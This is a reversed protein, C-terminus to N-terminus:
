GLYPNPQNPNALLSGIPAESVTRTLTGTVTGAIGTVDYSELVNLTDTTYILGVV